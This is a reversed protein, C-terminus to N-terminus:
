LNFDTATLNHNGSIDIRFEADNDGDVSGQVVTYDGDARTEHTIILKGAGTLATGTLL